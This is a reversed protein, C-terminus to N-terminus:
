MQQCPTRLHPLIIYTKTPRHLHGPAKLFGRCTPRFFTEHGTFSDSRPLTRRVYYPPLSPPLSPPPRATQHPKVISYYRTRSPVQTRNERTQGLTVTSCVCEAHLYVRRLRGRYSHPSVQESPVRPLFFGTVPNPKPSLFPALSRHLAIDTLYLAIFKEDITLGPLSRPRIKTHETVDLM